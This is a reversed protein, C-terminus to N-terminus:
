YSTGYKTSSATEKLFGKLVLKDKKQIHSIIMGMGHNDMDLRTAKM